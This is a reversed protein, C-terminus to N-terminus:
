FYIKLKILIFLLESLLFFVLHCPLLPFQFISFFCMWIHSFFLSLERPFFLIELLSSRRIHLIYSWPFVLPSISFPAFTFQPHFLCMVYCLVVACSCIKSIIPPLEIYLLSLLGVSSLSVTLGLCFLQADTEFRSQFVCWIVSLSFLVM